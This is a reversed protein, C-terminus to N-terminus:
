AVCFALEYSAQQHADLQQPLLQGDKSCTQNLHRLAADIEQRLVGLCEAAKVSPKASLPNPQSDSM